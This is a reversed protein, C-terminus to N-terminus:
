YSDDINIEPRNKVTYNNFKWSISLSIYPYKSKSYSESYYNENEYITNNSSFGLVDKCQLVLSLKKDFFTQRLAASVFYVESKTGQAWVSPSSYNGSIQIKTNNGFKFTNSISAGWNLSKSAYDTGNYEGEARYNYFDGSLDLMYWKGPILSINIESGLSYDKGVNEHIEMRINQEYPIMIEEIKDNTINYYVEVSIINKGLEKQYSLEWSDIFEPLLEPNGISVNYADSWVLFPWLHYPRPRTIRRTYSAMVEQKHELQYSFHVTPFFDFRKINTKNLSVSSSINRLSYEGRLGLQFEFKNLSGSYLGYLGQINDSYNASNFYLDQLEYNQTTINYLSKNNEQNGAALKGEIGTEIKHNENIPLEYDIRYEIGRMPGTEISQQGEIINETSDTLQTISTKVPIREYGTAQFTLKEDAKNFLRTYTFSASNFRGSLEWNNSSAYKNHLNSTNTWDDFYFESNRSMSRHALSIEANFTNFTDPTFEAGFTFGYKSRNFKSEGSSELYYITDSFTSESYEKKDSLSSKDSYDVKAYVGFKEENYNLLIDGGYNNYTGVNANVIGNIGLLKNKKTIINIIGATGEPNYKASANTILEIQSIMSSPIQQLADNSELASPKGNILVTFNSNGRISVNGDLDVNVGAVNELIDTASGSTASILESVNVVKKDIKYDLTLRESEITVENLLEAGTELYIINLNKSQNESNLILDSLFFDNFGIFSIKLYYEGPENLEVIFYGESNTVTGTIFTSDASNYLTVTAYEIKTESSKDLVTGEITYKKYEFSNSNASNIYVASILFTLFIFKDIIRM